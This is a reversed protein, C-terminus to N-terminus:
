RGPGNVIYIYTLTNAQGIGIRNQHKSFGNKSPRYSGAALIGVTSGSIVLRGIGAWLANSTDQPHKICINSPAHNEFM